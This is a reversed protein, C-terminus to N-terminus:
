RRPRRGYVRVALAVLWATWLLYGAFNALDAGPVGLPTLIGTAILLAAAQGFRAMPAGFLRGALARIVAVTWLATLAYGLTEGVITGLVTSVTTFAAPDTLFPVVLPWRLLGIVQVAAAGVGLLVIARRHGTGLRSLGVAAPALLAAAAALLLFLLPVVPGGAAFAALVDSAPRALVDPYDFVVALGAFAVNAGLAATLLVPPLARTVTLEM